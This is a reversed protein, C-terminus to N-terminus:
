SITNKVIIKDILCRNRMFTLFVLKCLESKLSSNIRFKKFQNQLESLINNIQDLFLCYQWKKQVIKCLKISRIVTVVRLLTNWLRIFDQKILYAKPLHISADSINGFIM